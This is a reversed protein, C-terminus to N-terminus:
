GRNIVIQNVVESGEFFLIGKLNNSKHLLLLLRLVSLNKFVVGNEDPPKITYVPIMIGTEKYNALIIKPERKNRFPIFIETKELFATAGDNKKSNLATQINEIIELTKEDM